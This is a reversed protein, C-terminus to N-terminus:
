LSGHLAGSVPNRMSIWIPLSLHIWPCIGMLIWACSSKSNKARTIAHTDVANEVETKTRTTSQDAQASLADNVKTNRRVVSADAM